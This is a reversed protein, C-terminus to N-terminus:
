EEARRIKRRLSEKDFPVTAPEDQVGLAKLYDNLAQDLLRGMPIQTVESVKKLSLFHDADLYTTLKKREKLASDGVGKQPRFKEAM